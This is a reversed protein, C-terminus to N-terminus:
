SFSREKSSCPRRGSNVREQMWDDLESLLFRWLKREGEGLPHAPVMGERAMRLLTRRHLGLFRAAVSADVYYERPTLPQLGGVPGRGDVSPGFPRAGRVTHRELANSTDDNTMPV